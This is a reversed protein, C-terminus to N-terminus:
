LIQNMQLVAAMVEKTPLQKVTRCLYDSQGVDAAGEKYVRWGFPFGTGAACSGLPLRQAPTHILHLWYGSRNGDRQRTVQGSRNGSICITFVASCIDGGPKLGCKRQSTGHLVHTVHQPFDTFSPLPLLPRGSGSPRKNGLLNQTMPAPVM